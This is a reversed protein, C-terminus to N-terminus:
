STPIIPTKNQSLKIQEERNISKILRFAIELGINNAKHKTTYPNTLGLSAIKTCKEPSIVKVRYKNIM